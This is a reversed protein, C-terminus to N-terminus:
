VIPSASRSRSRSRNRRATDVPRSDPSRSRSRRAADVARTIVACRELEDATSAALVRASRSYDLAASMRARADTLAAVISSAAAVGAHSSVMEAEVVPVVDAARTNVNRRELEARIDAANSEALDARTNAANAAARADALAAIVRSAISSAARADDISSVMEAEVVPVANAVAEDPPAMEEDGGIELPFIPVIEEPDAPPLGRLMRDVPGDEEEEDVDRWIGAATAGANSRLTVNIGADVLAEIHPRSGESAAYHLATQGHQDVENPDVGFSLLARMIEVPFEVSVQLSRKRQTSSIYDLGKLRYLTELAPISGALIAKHVANDAMLLSLSSVDSELVQLKTHEAKHEAKEETMQRLHQVWEDQFHIPMAGRQCQVSCIPCAIIVQNCETQHRVLEGAMLVLGCVCQDPRMNCHTHRHPTLDRLPVLDGCAPCEVSRSPCVHQMHNSLLGRKLTVHCEHCEAPMETCQGQHALWASTSMKVHCRYCSMQMADIRQKLFLSLGKHEVYSARCVPCRGDHERAQTLCRKCGVHGCDTGLPLAPVERCIMCTLNQEQIGSPNSFYELPFTVAEM